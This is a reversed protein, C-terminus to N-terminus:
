SLLVEEKLFEEGKPTIKCWGAADIVVYDDRNLLKCILLTYYRGIEMMDALTMYHAVGGREWINALAERAISVM